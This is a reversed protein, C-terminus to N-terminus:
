QQGIGVEGTTVNKIQKGESTPGVRNQPGELTVQIGPSCLTARHGRHLQWCAAHPKPAEASVSSTGPPRKGSHEEAKPRLEFTVESLNKQGGLVAAGINWNMSSDVCEEQDETFTLRDRNGTQM